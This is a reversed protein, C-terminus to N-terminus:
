EPEVRVQYFRGAAQGVVDTFTNTPPAAALRETLPAFPSALDTAGFVTYFKGALSPWRLVVSDVAAEVSITLPQIWVFIATPVGWNGADDQAELFVTHRGLTWGTTDITAVLAEQGADFQGDAAELPQTPAGTVWSPDDVSYRAAQIPRVVAPAGTGASRTADAVATLTVLAGALNTVTSVTPQVVDPGAPDLYPQRCAKAAYYLAPRNAPYVTQEFSGCPEFFTTGIEFTYSALGLEGYAWEDATGSTPYLEFSPQVTYRNFFGFKGGLTGLAAHNPAPNTSWGWPFLILEGYSHVSLFLGTATAPAPDDEGPGRQDPFLSRVYDRIAQNEPESFPAPGRYLEDCPDAGSGVGGWEFGCNRNLDTGHSTVTACGNTNNTNKRWWLGQEARKRGDPNAMPLLHVEHYDLLWTADPDVGYGAVLEEAFRTATEATALERAHHEAMLFLRPKPGPRNQNALVLVLLDYGATGGSHAKEWSQGIVSLTALGPHEAAIRDLAAYTEEVTRYCPFGPIGGSGTSATRFAANAAAMQYADIEVRYGSELLHRHEDSRLRAVVYGEAHNAYEFVDYRSVLSALRTRDGYYVRAIVGADPPTRQTEALLAATAEAGPSPQEGVAATLGVAVWALCGAAPLWSWRSSRWRPRRSSSEGRIAAPGRRTQAPVPRGRHPRDNLWEM